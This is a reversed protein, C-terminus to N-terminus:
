LFIKDYEFFLREGRSNELLLGDMILVADNYRKIIWVPEFEKIMALAQYIPSPRGDTPLIGTDGNLEYFGLMGAEGLNQITFLTWLAAFSSYQRPDAKNKDTTHRGGFKIHINIPKGPAFSNATKITDAQNELNEFISRTDSAHVQPQLSFSIFDFSSSLSPRNRNLEAFHGNTGYGLLIVPFDKKIKDYIDALLDSPTADSGKQLVLVSVVREQIGTLQKVFKSGQKDASMEFFVVLELRTNLQTAANFATQLQEPWSTDSLDLEVRLQDLPISKGLAIDTATLNTKKVEYGYGIKPFPIKKVEDNTKEVVAAAKKSTSVLLSIRQQIQEGKSVMVPYPLSLPTSYTKYSSDTWNRHDETEFIDGELKLEMQLNDATSWKMGEVNIFPQHPSILWPFTSRNVAGDTELIEVERGECERVPHHICLGIRNRKFSSLSEGKMLFSITNDSRGEIEFFAKYSIDHQHYVATYSIFFEKEKVEIKEDIISFPITDWQENRLASYIMRLVETKGCKISRLNGAEYMCTLEGAALKKQPLLDVDWPLLINKQKM